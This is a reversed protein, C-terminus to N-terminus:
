WRVSRRFMGSLRDRYRNVTAPTLKRRSPSSWGQRLGALFREIDTTTIEDLKRDGFAGILAEVQGRTTEYSRHQDKAWVLYRKAYERFTLRERERAALAKAAARAQAREIKPCWGPEHCARKRRQHYARIADGNIPGVTEEHVCGAGCTFRIGWLGLRPHFVGRPAADKKRTSRGAKLKVSETM